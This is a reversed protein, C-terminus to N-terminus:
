TPQAIGRQGNGSLSFNWNEAPCYSGGGVSTYPTSLVVTGTWGGWAGNSVQGKDPAITVTITGSVGVSSCETLKARSFSGSYGLGDSVLGVTFPYYEGGATPIKAGITMTCDEGACVPQFDWSYSYGTGVAAGTAGSPVYTPTVQVQIGSNLPTSMIAGVAPASPKSQHSGWQAVVSYRYAQGPNQEGDTYNTTTGPLEMVESSGNYITYKSPTPGLPSPRWRLMAQSYNASVSLGVPSPALTTVTAIVSPGSRQGGGVTEVAYQHTTGPALGRDTWSTQSALVEGAQKGDRLVVYHAPTAGGTAAPWSVTVTTATKSQASVSGPANPSPNWPAWVLLGAVLGLAVVGGLGALVRRSPRPPKRMRRMGRMRRKRPEGVMALLSSAPPAPFVPVGSAEGGVTLGLAESAESAEGGVTPVMFESAEGGVTPGLIESAEPVGSPASPEAVVPVEPLASSEAPVPPGAEHMEGAVSPEAMVGDPVPGSAPADFSM